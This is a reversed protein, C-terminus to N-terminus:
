AAVRSCNCSFGHTRVVQVDVTEVVRRVIRGRQLRHNPRVRLECSISFSGARSRQLLAGVHLRFHDPRYSLLPGVM